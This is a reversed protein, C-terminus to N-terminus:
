LHRHSSNTRHNIFAHTFWRSPSTLTGSTHVLGCFGAYVFIERGVILLFCFHEVATADKAFTHSENDDHEKTYWESEQNQLPIVTRQIFLDISPPTRFKTKQTNSISKHQPLHHHGTPPPTAIRFRGDVVAFRALQSSWCQSACPDPEKLGVRWDIGVTISHTKRVRKTTYCKLQDHCPAM